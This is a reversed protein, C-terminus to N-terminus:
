PKDRFRVGLAFGSIMGAVVLLLLAPNWGIAGIAIGVLVLPALLLYWFFWPEYTMVRTAKGEITKPEHPELDIQM